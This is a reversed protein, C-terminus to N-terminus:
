LEQSTPNKSELGCAKLTLKVAQSIRYSANLRTWIGRKPSLLRIDEKLVILYTLCERTKFNKISFSLILQDGFDEKLGEIIEDFNEILTANNGESLNDFFAILKSPYWDVLLKSSVMSHFMTSLFIAVM